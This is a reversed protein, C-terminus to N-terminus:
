KDKERPAAENDVRVGVLKWDGLGLSNGVGTTRTQGSAWRAQRARSSAAPKVLCVAMTVQAAAKAKRKRRPGLLAICSPTRNAVTATPRKPAMLRAVPPWHHSLVMTALAM